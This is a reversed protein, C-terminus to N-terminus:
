NCTGNSIATANCYAIRLICHGGNLTQCLAGTPGPVNNNNPNPGNVTVAAKGLSAQGYCKSAGQACEVFGEGDGRGDADSNDPERGVITHATDVTSFIMLQPFSKDTVSLTGMPHGGTDQLQITWPAYLPISTGSVLTCKKYYTDAQPCSGDTVSVAVHSLLDIFAHSSDIEHILNDFQRVHISGDGVSVPSSNSGNDQLIHVQAEKSGRLYGASNASRYTVYVAAVLIIMPVTILLFKQM